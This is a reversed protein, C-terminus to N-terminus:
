ISTELATWRAQITETKKYPSGEPKSSKTSDLTLLIEEIYIARRLNFILKTFEPPCRRAKKKAHSFGRGVDFRFLKQNKWPFPSHERSPSRVICVFPRM